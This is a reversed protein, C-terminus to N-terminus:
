NKQAKHLDSDFDFSQLSIPLTQKHTTWKLLILFKLTVTLNELYTVFATNVMFYMVLKSEANHCAALSELLFNNEAEIGFQMICKQQSFCLSGLIKVPIDNNDNCVIHKDDPWNALIIENRADPVTPKLDIKNFYYAFNCNEKDSGLDFYKMSECSYKSKHKVIFHEKCFHEYGIKKCMTLEQQRLSIYTESNLAIYPRDIHLLTYSHAQKYQDIIPVSM